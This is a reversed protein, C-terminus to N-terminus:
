LDYFTGGSVNDYDCQYAFSSTFNTFEDLPMEPFLAKATGDNNHFRGVARSNLPRM